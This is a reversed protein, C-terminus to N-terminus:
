SQLKSAWAVALDVAFAKAGARRTVKRQKDLSFIVLLFSVGSSRARRKAGPERDPGPNACAADQRSHSRRVDRHAAGAPASRPRVAAASRRGTLTLPLFCSCAMPM